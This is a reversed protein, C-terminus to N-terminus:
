VKMLMYYINQFKKDIIIKENVVKKFESINSIRLKENSGYIFVSISLIFNLFIAIKM